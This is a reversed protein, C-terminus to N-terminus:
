IAQPRNPLQQLYDFLAECRDFDLHLLDAQVARRASVGFPLRPLLALIEPAFADLNLFIPLPSDIAATLAPVYSAPQLVPHQATLEVYVPQHALHPLPGLLELVDDPSRAVVELAYPETPPTWDRHYPLRIQIVDHPPAPLGREAADAALLAPAEADAACDAVVGPGSIWGVIDAYLAPSLYCDLGRGRDFTLLDVGQAACYRADHLDALHNIKIKLAQQM